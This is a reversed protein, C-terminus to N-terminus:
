AHQRTLSIIQWCNNDGVGAASTIGVTNIPTILMENSVDVFLTFLSICM